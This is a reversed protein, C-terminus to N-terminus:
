FRSCLARTYSVNPMTRARKVVASNMSDDVHDDDVTVDNASRKNNRDHTWSPQNIPSLDVIQGDKDFEFGLDQGLLASQACDEGEEEELLGLLQLDAGPIKPLTSESRKYLSAASLGLCDSSSLAASKSSTDLSYLGSVHSM